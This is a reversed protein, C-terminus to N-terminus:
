LCLVGVLKMCAERVVREIKDGVLGLDFGRLDPRWLEQKEGWSEQAIYGKRATEYEIEWQRYDGARRQQNIGYGLKAKPIADGAFGIRM